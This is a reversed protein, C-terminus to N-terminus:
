VRFWKPYAIKYAIIHQMNCTKKGATQKNDCYFAFYIKLSKQTKKKPHTPPNSRIQLNEVKWM